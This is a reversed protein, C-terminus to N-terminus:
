WGCRVRCRKCDASKEDGECNSRCSECPHGWRPGYGWYPGGWFGAGAGKRKPKEKDKGGWDFLRWHGKKDGTDTLAAGDLAILTLNPLPVAFAPAEGAVILAAPLLLSYIRRKM